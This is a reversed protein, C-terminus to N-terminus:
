LGYDERSIAWAPATINNIGAPAYGPWHNAAVCSAWENVARRWRREGLERFAGDARVPNVIHPPETEVFLFLFDVRGTLEPRLKELASVYAARQVDYGHDIASREIRPSSADATFKLDVIQGAHLRLHDFMGRCRLPGHLATEEDWEIGQESVGDLVIGMEDLTALVSGAMEIAEAHDGALVPIEGAAKADDRADKAADTRYNDADIVRIKRGKGLVLAHGLTGLDMAKSSRKGKGGHAPHQLFAHMPSRTVLTTAISQSFAPLAHYEDETMPPLLRATM